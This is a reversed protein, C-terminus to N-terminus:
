SRSTPGSPQPEDSAFAFCPVQERRIRVPKLQEKTYRELHRRLQAETGSRLVDRIEARDILWSDAIQNIAYPRTESPHDDVQVPVGCNHGDSSTVVIRFIRGHKSDSGNDGTLRAVDSLVQATPVQTGV